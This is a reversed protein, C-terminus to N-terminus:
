RRYEGRKLVKLARKYVPIDVMKDDVNLSARGIKESKEFEEVIRLAEEIEKESPSFYKNIVDVQSPHIAFKGKFGLKKIMQIEEILKEPNKYEVNPTDLPIINYAHATMAFLYRPIELSQSREIEFDNCFDEAGFAAAVIRFNKNLQFIQQMNIIGKTSEIWIILKVSNEQIQLKNELNRVKDEIEKYEEPTNVKPIVFGDIFKHTQSSLLFNLDDLFLGSELSNLRPFILREQTNSVTPNNLLFSLIKNRANIKEKLPVSDELDPVIVNANIKEAKFLMKEQNGPIFLCSKIRSSYDTLDLSSRFNSHSLHKKIIKIM